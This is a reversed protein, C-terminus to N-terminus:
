LFLGPQNSFFVSTIRLDSKLIATLETTANREQSNVHTMLVVFYTGPDVCKMGGESHLILRAVIKPTLLGGPKIHCLRALQEPRHVRSADLPQYLVRADFLYLVLNTHQPIAPEHAASAKLM